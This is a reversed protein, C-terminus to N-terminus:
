TLPASTSRVTKPRSYVACRFGHWKSPMAAANVWACALAGRGTGQADQFRVFLLLTDGADWGVSVDLGQHEGEMPQWFWAQGNWFLRGGTLTQRPAWVTAGGVCLWWFTWAALVEASSTQAQVQWVLLGMASLLAIVVAALRGWVFRGVPFAVPPANHM